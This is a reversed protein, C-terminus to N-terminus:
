LLASWGHRHRPLARDLAQRAKVRSPAAKAAAGIRRFGRRKAVRDPAIM